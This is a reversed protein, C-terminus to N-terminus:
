IKQRRSNQTIVMFFTGDQSKYEYSTQDDVGQIRLILTAASTLLEGFYLFYNKEMESSNIAGML